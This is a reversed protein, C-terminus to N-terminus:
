ITARELDSCAMLHSTARMSLLNVVAAKANDNSPMKQLATNREESGYTAEGHFLQITALAHHPVTNGASAVPGARTPLELVLAGEASLQVNNRLSCLNLFRVPQGPCKLSSAPREWLQKLIRDAERESILLVQHKTPHSWVLLLDVPRLYLNLNDLDNQHAVTRIFNDTCYVDDSWLIDRLIPPQLHDRVVKKIRM